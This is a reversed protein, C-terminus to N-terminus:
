AAGIAALADAYENPDDYGFTEGFTRYPEPLRPVLVPYSDPGLERYGIKAQYAPPVMPPAGVAGEPAFEIGFHEGKQSTGKFVSLGFDTYVHLHWIKWHGNENAFDVGYREWLWSADKHTGVMGPTYWVGKASNRDEAVEIIATTLTHFMFGGPMSKQDVKPGYYGKIAEMGKWYDKNQAWVATEQLEKTQVWAKELEVDNLLHAHYWCHMGMVNQLEHIDVALQALQAPSRVARQSKNM